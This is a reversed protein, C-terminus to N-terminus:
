GFHRFGAEAMTLPAGDEFVVAEVIEAVFVVSDGAETEARVECVLAGLTDALGFGGGEVAVIAISYEDVKDGVRSKPRGLNGAMERQGSRYPGIVFRGSARILNLTSSAREVSLMLMPPEFSAQSVWNATFVGRESDHEASVWFLGYTFSRLLQKRAEIDLM